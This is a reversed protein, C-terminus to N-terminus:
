GGSGGDHRHATVDTPAQLCVIPANLHAGGGVTAWRADAWLGCDVGQGLEGPACSDKRNWSGQACGRGAPLLTSDSARTAGMWDPIWTMWAFTQLRDLFAM